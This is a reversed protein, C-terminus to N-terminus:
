TVKERVYVPQADKPLVAAVQGQEVMQLMSVICPGQLIRINEKNLLSIDFCPNYAHFGIGAIIINSEICKIDAPYGVHEITAVQNKASFSWYLQQMRADILALVPKNPYKERAAIVISALSSVPYVAIDQAYGIGQALACAVRLGTFSGPGRNFVIGDISSLSCDAEALVADILCLLNRSHDRVGEISKVMFKGDYRLAVQAIDSSSEIALLKM